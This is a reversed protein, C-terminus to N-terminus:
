KEPVDQWDQKNPQRDQRLLSAQVLQGTPHAVQVGEAVQM